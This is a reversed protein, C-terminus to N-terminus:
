FGSYVVELILPTDPNTPSYLITASPVQYQKIATITSTGTTSSTSYSVSVPVLTMTLVSDAEIIDYEALRLKEMLMKSVDFSYYYVTNGVSDTGSTLAGLVADETLVSLWKNVFYTERIDDDVLLMHPAPKLWDAPTKYVSSKNPDYVVNIRLTAMNIYTNRKDSYEKIDNSIEDLITAIPFAIQTYVGAPSIVYNFEDADASLQEVLSGQNIYGYRNVQKVEANAYFYKSDEERVTDKKGLDPNLREYEFHYYVAFAITNINLITSSGFETTIYLGNFKSNFDEQSTFRKNAEFFREAFWENLRMRIGPVYRSSSYASDQYNAATIVVADDVILTSDELSCYDSIDIDSKYRQDYDLSMKDMEYVLISMPSFEDGTVTTYYMYLCVSDLVSGEPYVFGVPASLQTMIDARLTGYPTEIEGLLFSDPQSFIHGCSDLKSSLKFTDVLVVIQDDQPLIDSGTTATDTDCGVILCATLLTLLIYSLRRM